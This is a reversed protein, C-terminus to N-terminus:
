VELNSQLWTVSDSFAVSDYKQKEDKYDDIAKQMDELLSKIEAEADQGPRYRVSFTQNKVEVSDELYKLNVTFIWLKDMTKSVSAKSVEIALAM